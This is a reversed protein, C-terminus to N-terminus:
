YNTMLKDTSFMAWSLPNDILIDAVFILKFKITEWKFSLTQTWLVLMFGGNLFFHFAQVLGPIELIKSNYKPITGVTHYKKNQM